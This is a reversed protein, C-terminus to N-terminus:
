REWCVSMDCGGADFPFIMPKVESASKTALAIRFEAQLSFESGKCFRGDPIPDRGDVRKDLYRVAASWCEGPCLSARCFGELLAAIFGQVNGIRICRDYGPDLDAAIKADFATSACFININAEEFSVATDFGTISGIRFRNGDRNLRHRVGAFEPDDTGKSDVGKVEVIGEMSDGKNLGHLETRRFENLTGVRVSQGHLFAEAFRGPMFKYIVAPMGNKDLIM